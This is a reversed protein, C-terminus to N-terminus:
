AGGKGIKLGFLGSVQGEKTLGLGVDGGRDEMANQAKLTGQTFMKYPLQTELGCLSGLFTRPKGCM